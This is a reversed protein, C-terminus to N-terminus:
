RPVKYRKLVSLVEKKILQHTEDISERTRILKVRRPEKKAIAIYGKRVRIHYSLAKEEMRDRKLRTARNLGEEADIDLIITLDPKLGNTALMNMSRVMKKDLGNAYGQYAM